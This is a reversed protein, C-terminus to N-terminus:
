MLVEYFRVKEPTYSGLMYPTYFKDFSSMKEKDPKHFSVTHPIYFRNFGTIERCISSSFVQVNQPM